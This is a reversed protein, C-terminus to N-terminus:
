IFDVYWHVSLLHFSIYSYAPPCPPHSFPDLSILFVPFVPTLAYIAPELICETPPFPQNVSRETNLHILLELALFVPFVQTLAYIAPELISEAPPFPQNVSRETNLQILSELAVPKMVLFILTFASSHLFLFLIGHRSKSHGRFQPLAPFFSPLLLPWTPM